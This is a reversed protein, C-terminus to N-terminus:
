NSSKEGRIMFGISGGIYSNNVTGIIPGNPTKIDTKPIFNYELGLIFKGLDLGGRLLFGVRNNVSVELVDESPNVINTRLVKTYNTLFYYGVGGGLYPRFKNENFYYDFTPVISLVGNDPNIFQILGNNPNDYRYSQLPDYNENKENISVGVRLGILTNKSTKVKPEVCLFFGNFWPPGPNASKSTWLIGTEIKLKINREVQASLHFLACSLILLLLMKKLMVSKNYCLNFSFFNMVM